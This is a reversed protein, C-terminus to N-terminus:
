DADVSDLELSFPHTKLYSLMSILKDVRDSAPPADDDDSFIINRNKGDTKISYEEYGTSHKERTVLFGTDPDHLTVTRCLHDTEKM